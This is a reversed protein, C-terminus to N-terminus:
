NHMNELLGMESSVIPSAYIALRLATDFYAQGVTAVADAAAATYLTDIVSYFLVDSWSNLGPFAAAPLVCLLVTPQSTAM